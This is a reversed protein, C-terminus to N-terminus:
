RARAQKAFYEPKKDFRHQAQVYRITGTKSRV